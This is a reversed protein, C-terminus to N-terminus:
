KFQQHHLQLKVNLSMIVPALLQAAAVLLKINGKWIFYREFMNQWSYGVSYHWLVLDAGLSLVLWFVGVTWARKAWDRNFTKQAYFRAIIFFLVIAAISAYIHTLYGGIYPRLFNLAASENALAIGWALAWYGFAYHLKM